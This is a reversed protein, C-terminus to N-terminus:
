GLFAGPNKEFQRKCGAACFYYTQGQYEAVHHASAVDVTMGCVPDTAQVPAASPPLQPRFLGAARQSVLEALVAVAIEENAISGLDLGAPAHIRALAADSVGRDRLLERVSDARKASAVLGVYAADTALAAELAQEDYHGQTAVVVATNSGVGLSALDLTTRVPVATTHDLSSGGDDVITPSWGLVRTLSALTEVAPTHGIVIVRPKPLVPELYVQLAGESACSMPVSVGGAPVEEDPLGLYLLRPEGTELATLSERVVTPEACAGGLWGHLTGDPLVLAKAGSRGSSPERRWVVTALVFADGQRELDAAQELVTSTLGEGGPDSGV